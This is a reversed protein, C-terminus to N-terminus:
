REIKAGGLNDELVEVWCISNDLKIIEEAIAECSMNGFDHYKYEGVCVEYKVKLYEKYLQQMLFIEKDRDNHNVKMGIKIRFLHRHEDRLFFVDDPADKWRHHGEVDFVLIITRKFDFLHAMLGLHAGIM